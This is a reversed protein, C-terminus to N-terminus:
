FHVQLGERFNFNEFFGFGRELREVLDDDVVVIYRRHIENHMDEFRDEIEAVVAGGLDHEGRVDVAVRINLRQCLGFCLLSNVPRLEFRVIRTIREM